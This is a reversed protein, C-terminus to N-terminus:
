LMEMMISALFLTTLNDNYGDKFYREVQVRMASEDDKCFHINAQLEEMLSSRSPHKEIFISKKSEHFRDLLEDFGVMNIRTFSSDVWVMTDYKSHDLYKHPNWKYYYSSKANNNPVPLEEVYRIDWTESQLRNMNTYCIFDYKDRDYGFELLQSDYAGILSTVVAIKKTM